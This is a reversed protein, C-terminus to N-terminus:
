ETKADKLTISDMPKLPIIKAGAANAAAAARGIPCGNIAYLDHHMPMYPVELAAALEAAEQENINGIIGRDTRDDDRGNVPLLLLDCHERALRAALGDYLSMDGGFFVTHGGFDIIYSLEFFRGEDDTHLQTHACPVPTIRVTGVTFSEEARCARITGIGLETLQYCEPAPACIIAQGGARAYDGLTIPDMHDTHAHSILVAHPQLASLTAPAPYLRQWPTQESYHLRDVADSLYPDTVIRTNGDDLLFGCQGLYSIKLESL